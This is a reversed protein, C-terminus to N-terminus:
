LKFYGTWHIKWRMCVMKRSCSKDRNIIWMLWINLKITKDSRSCHTSCWALIEISKFDSFAQLYDCIHDEFRNSWARNSIVIGAYLIGQALVRELFYKKCNCEIDPHRAAHQLLSWDKIEFANVNVAFWNLEIEM